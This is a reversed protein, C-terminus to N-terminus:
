EKEIEKIEKFSNFLIDIVLENSQMFEQKLYGIKSKNRISLSGKTVDEEKTILKLLTSKGSGNEGVLAIKEGTKIDINIDDLVMDFGYSKTVNKFNIEIM